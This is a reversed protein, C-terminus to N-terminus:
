KYQRLTPDPLPIAKLLAQTYPHQPSQYIKETIGKEVLTGDKMVGITDSIRRVLALDHSILLFSTGSKQRINQFLNIIQAQVSVDLSAVPEDAIILDPNLALARAIAARQQQGGSYDSPLRYFSSEDLGVLRLLELAKEKQPIKSGIRQIRLPEMISQGITLRPSLASLPDQFIFQMLKGTFQIKGSDPRELGIICRGTTSKGSGSEGVLSFIEGRRIEFSIDTVAPITLGNASHFTKSLNKVQLIQEM